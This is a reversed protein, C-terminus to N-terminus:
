RRGKLEDFFAKSSVPRGLFREVLVKAPEEGGRALITKRFRMGVNTDLIDNGWASLLDKGIVESWMYGYYGAAYGGLIHGFTGPFETGPIYGLLSAGEVQKWADM